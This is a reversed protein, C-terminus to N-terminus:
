AADVRVIGRRQEVKNSAVDIARSERIVTV